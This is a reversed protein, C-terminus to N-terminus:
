RIKYGSRGRHGSPGCSGGLRIVQNMRCGIDHGSQGQKRKQEFLGSVKRRDKCVVQLKTVHTDEHSPLRM